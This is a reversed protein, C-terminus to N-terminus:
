KHKGKKLINLFRPTKATDHSESEHQSNPLSSPASFTLVMIEPPCFLRMPLLSCGLGRTVILHKGHYNLDGHSYKKGIHTVSLLPIGGPLCIQGSHTHGALTLTTEKPIATIADPSHTIAVMPISPSLRPPVQSPRVIGSSADPVGSFQIMSDDKTVFFVSKREMMTIGAKRLEEIFPSAGCYVDHNGLVGLTTVASALPRLGKGLDEPSIAAERDHGYAYDGLLIVLDPKQEIIFGVTKELRAQEDRKLHFDGAIVVKMNKATGKWEKLPVNIHAATLRSPEIRWAYYLVSLGVLFLFLLFLLTIKISIGPKPM